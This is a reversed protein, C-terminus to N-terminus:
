WNGFLMGRQQAIKTRRIIEGDSIGVRSRRRLSWELLHQRMLERVQAHGPNQGLDVFENPDNKLDFLQPPACLWHIYKWQDSRVMVGRSNQPSSKLLLRAARVSFDIESFVTGRWSFGNQGHLVPQLPRGELREDVQDIGLARLFTPVLDISEVLLQSRAGRTADAAPSPDVVILPIRVSSEHFLDKEGLWHDGLYDGHDSTFVIMTSDSLGREELFSMLRGIHRDIQSVLGMYTPIVRSRVAQHKFNLSEPQKLYAQYVPHPNELESDDRIAPKVDSSSYRDHYPAPAMYPWHPKIYSLHLCWPQNGAEEIFAMARDTMYATESHEEAVRAPLHSHRMNWGSLMRGDPGQASNAYELWGNTSNYGQQRLYQNYGLDPNQAAGPHVGDDREYPEFGCQSVLVGLSSAPDVGLRRMGAEDPNMHTKGVLATRIGQPRLYDGLTMEDVRLPFRNYSAGHSLPYRGTYFSMRSPGCNPANCFAQDFLVGRGALADIHPTQIFPHGMCSLYDYRLQDCMIFLINRSQSLRKLPKTLKDANEFPANV